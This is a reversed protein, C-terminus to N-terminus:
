GSFLCLIIVFEHNMGVLMGLSNGWTFTNWLGSSVFSEMDSSVFKPFGSSINVNTLCKHKNRMYELLLVVYKM